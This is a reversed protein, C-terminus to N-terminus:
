HNAKLSMRQYSGTTAEVPTFGTSPSARDHLDGNKIKWKGNEMKWEGNEM